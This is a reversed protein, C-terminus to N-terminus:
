TFSVTQTVSTGAVTLSGSAPSPTYGASLVSFEYTGNSVSFTITTGTSSKSMGDFTVSWKAGHGLGKEKFTVHYKVLSWHLVLINSISGQGAGVVNVTGTNSGQLSYNAVQGVTYAYTGNAIHSFTISSTDTCLTAGNFSVCWTTKWATTFGKEEFKVDYTTRVFKSSIKLPEGVVSYSGAPTTHYGSVEGIHYSYAGNLLYFVLKASTSSQEQGNTTVSWATGSPLGQEVFTVPSYGLSVVLPGGDVTFTGSSSGGKAISVVYAYTGNPEDFMISPASSTFTMQGVTLSWITGSPLGTEDVSVQYTVLTFTVEVSIPVGALTFTADYSPAYLSNNDLVSISYTGNPLGTLNLASGNVPIQTGDLVVTWNVALPLGMESVTVLNGSYGPASSDSPGVPVSVYSGSSVTTNLVVVSASSNSSEVSVLESPSSTTALYSESTINYLAVFTRNEIQYIVTDAYTGGSEGDWYVSNSAFRVSVNSTGNYNFSLVGQGGFEDVLPVFDSPTTGTLNTQAPQSDADRAPESAHLAPPVGILPEVATSSSAEQEYLAYANDLTATAELSDAAEISNCSNSNFICYLYEDQTVDENTSFWKSLHLYIEGGVNEAPSAVALNASDGQTLSPLASLLYPLEDGLMTQLNVEEQLLSAFPIIYDSIIVNALAQPLDEGAVDDVLDSAIDPLADVTAEGFGSELVNTLVGAGASALSAGVGAGFQEMFTEMIAQASGEPPSGFADTYLEGVLGSVESQPFSVLGAVFQFTSYTESTVIAPYGSTQGDLTEFIAAPNDSSPISNFGDAIDQVLGTYYEVQESATSGQDQAIDNLIPGIITALNLVNAAIIGAEQEWEDALASNEMTQWQEWNATNSPGGLLIYSSAWLLTTSFDSALSPSLVVANGGNTSVMVSSIPCNSSSDLFCYLYDAQAWDTASGSISSYTSESGFIYWDYTNSGDISPLSFTSVNLPLSASAQTGQGDTVEVEVQYVGPASPTCQFELGGSPSCGTGPPTGSWQYSYPPDGGSPTASITTQSGVALTEPSATLSITLSTTFTATITGAGSVTAEGDSVSVDGGGVLSELGYGSCATASVSYTGSAVSSNLEGDTYTIGAFTLSGCSAPSTYFTVEYTQPIAFTATISGAGSVTAEGNSVSVSGAGVLSQLEYGACATASVSYTGSGISVQGGNDYTQGNFTVSGCSTPSTYFTISYSTIVSFQITQFFNTKGISESGSSPSAQYGSPPIVKFDSSYGSAVPYSVVNGSSPYTQGTDTDEVSYPQPTGSSWSGEWNLAVCPHLGEVYYYDYGVFALADKSDYVIDGLPTGFSVTSSLTLSNGSLAFEYVNGEYSGGNLDAAMLYYADGDYTLPGVNGASISDSAELVTGSIVNIASYGDSVYVYGSTSNVAFYDALDGDNSISTVSNTSPNIADVYDSSYGVYVDGNKSDYIIQGPSSVSFTHDVTGSATVEQVSNSGQNSVFLTNQSSDYTVAYPEGGTTVTGTSDTTPNVSYLYGSQDAFYVDGNSSDYTGYEPFGSGPFSTYSSGPNVIQIVSSSGDYFSAVIQGSGPDDVLGYVDYSSVGLEGLSYLQCSPDAGEPTVHTGTSSGPAPTSPQPATSGSSRSPLDHDDGRLESSIGGSITSVLALAVLAASAAIAFIAQM